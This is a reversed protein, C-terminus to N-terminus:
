PGSNTVTALFEKCFFQNDLFNSNVTIHWALYVERHRHQHMTYSIWELTSSSLYNFQTTVARLRLKPCPLIKVPTQRDVPQPNDKWCVDCTGHGPHDAELSDVEPSPPQMWHPDTDPSPNPLGETQRCPSTPCVGEGSFWPVSRSVTLLRATVM